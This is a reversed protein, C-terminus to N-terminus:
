YREWWAGAKIGFDAWDKECVISDNGWVELHYALIKRNKIGKLPIAIKAEGTGKTLANSGNRYGQGGLWMVPRKFSSLISMVAAKDYKKSSVKAEKPHFLRIVERNGYENSGHVLIYLYFYPARIKDTKNEGKRTAQYLIECDKIEGDKDKGDKPMRIDTVSVTYDSFGMVDDASGDSKIDSDFYEEIKSLLITKKAGDKEIVLSGERISIIKINSIKSGDKCIITGGWSSVIALFFVGIIMKKMFDSFRKKMIIRVFARNILIVKPFFIKLHM